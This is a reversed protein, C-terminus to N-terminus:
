LVEEALRMSCSRRKINTPMVRACFDRISEQRLFTHRVNTGHQAFGGSTLHSPLYSGQLGIDM